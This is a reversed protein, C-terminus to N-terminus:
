SRLPEYVYRWMARRAASPVNQPASPPGTPLSLAQVAKKLEDEEKEWLDERQSQGPMKYRFKFENKELVRKSKENDQFIWAELEERDPQQEFLVNLFTRLAESCYGRGWFDPHFIYFLSDWRNLGLVGITSSNADGQADRLSVAFILSHPRDVVERIWCEAEWVSALPGSRSDNM